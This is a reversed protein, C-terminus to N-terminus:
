AHLVNNRDMQRSRQNLLNVHHGGILQPGPRVHDRPHNILSQPPPRFRLRPHPVDM